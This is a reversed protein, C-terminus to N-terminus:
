RPPEWGRQDQRPVITGILDRSMLTQRSPFFTDGGRKLLCQDNQEENDSNVYGVFPKVWYLVGDRDELYIGKKQVSNLSDLAIAVCHHTTRLHSYQKSTVGEVM